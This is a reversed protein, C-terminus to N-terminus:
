NRGYLRPREFRYFGSVEEKHITEASKGFYKYRLASLNKELNDGSFDKEVERKEAMYKYGNQWREEKLVDEKALKIIAEESYGLQRRINEISLAREEISMNHLDHQVSDLHFFVGAILGNNLLPSAHENSYLEDITSKLVFLRENIDIENAKHLIKITDQVAVQKANEENIEHEWIEDAKHGFLERRKNWIATKRFVVEMENLNVLNDILWSDYKDMLEILTIIGKALDPFALEIIKKFIDLGYEPFRELIFGRLDRFSLQVRYDSIDHIHKERLQAVMDKILWEKESNISKSKSDYGVNMLTNSETIQTTIQVDSNYDLYALFLLLVVSCILPIWWSGNLKRHTM